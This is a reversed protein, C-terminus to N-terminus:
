MWTQKTHRFTKPKGTELQHDTSHKYSGKLMEKNDQAGRKTVVMELHSFAISQQFLLALLDLLFYNNKGCNQGIVKKKEGKKM